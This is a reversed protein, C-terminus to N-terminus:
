GMVLFHAAWAMCTKEFEKGDYGPNMFIAPNHPYSTCGDECIISNLIVTDGNLYQVNVYIVPNPKGFSDKNNGSFHFRYEGLTVVGDFETENEDWKNVTAKLNFAM